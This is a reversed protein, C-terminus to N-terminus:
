TYITFKYDLSELFDCAFGIAEIPWPLSEFEEIIEKKTEERIDDSIHYDKHLKDIADCLHKKYQEKRQMM